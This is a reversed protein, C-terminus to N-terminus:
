QVKAPIPEAAHMPESPFINLTDATLAFLFRTLSQRLFPNSIIYTDREMNLNNGNNIKLNYKIM